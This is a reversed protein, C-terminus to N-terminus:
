IGRHMLSSNNKNMEFSSIKESNYYRLLHCGMNLSIVDWILHCGINLSFYHPLHKKKKLAKCHYLLLLIPIIHIFILYIILIIHLNLWCLLYLLIQFNWLACVKHRIITILTYIPFIPVVISFVVIFTLPNQLCDNGYIVEENWHYKPRYRQLYERIYDPDTKSALM